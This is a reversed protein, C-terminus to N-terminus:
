RVFSGYRMMWCLMKVIYDINSNDIKCIFRTEDDDYECHLENDWTDFVDDYGHNGLINMAWAVTITPNEEIFDWSYM